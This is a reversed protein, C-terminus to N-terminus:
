GPQWRRRRPKARRAATGHEDLVGDGNADFLALLDPAYAGDEFWAAQLDALRVPRTNGNADDYVWYWASILNYPALRQEGDINDRM